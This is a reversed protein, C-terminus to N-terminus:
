DADTKIRKQESESPSEDSSEDSYEDSSSDEDEDDAKRDLWAEDNRKEWIMGMIM